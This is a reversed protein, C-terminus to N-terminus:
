AARKAAPHGRSSALFSFRPPEYHFEATFPAQFRDGALDSRVFYANVGSLECGVLAYGMTEGIRELRKLSAGFKKDGTWTARPDYPVEWDMPPTFSPNYEVVVARPRLEHLARWVHSTNMDIDISLLDLERPACGADLLLRMANQADVMGMVLRLQGSSLERAYSARITAVAASDSEWWIGSWGSELLFRTNNQEGDGAGIEVFTRNGSDLRTFIEHIVGDEGCQSYVQARYRALSRPDSHKPTALLADEQMSLLASFIAQTALTGDGDM